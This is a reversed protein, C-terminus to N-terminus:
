KLFWASAAIIFLSLARTIEACAGVCDGNIGGFNKRSEGAVIYPTIMALTSLLYVRDIMSLFVIVAMYIISSLVLRSRSLGEAFFKGMGDMFDRNSLMLLMSMKSNVEAAFVGMFPIAELAQLQVAIILVISLVGATGVEVGKMARIKRQAGGKTALGDFFDALGDIHIIGIILYLSLLSLFSKFPINAYLIAAPIFATILGILPLLAIEQRAKYIDGNVPIRTFFSILDKM